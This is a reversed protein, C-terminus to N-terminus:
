DSLPYGAHKSVLEFYSTALILNAEKKHIVTQKNGERECVGVCVCVCVFCDRETLGYPRTSGENVFGETQIIFHSVLRSMWLM